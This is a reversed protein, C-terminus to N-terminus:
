ETTTSLLLLQEPVAVGAVTVTFGSGITLMEAEGALTHEPPDSVNDAVTDLPAVAAM